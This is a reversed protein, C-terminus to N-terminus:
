IGFSHRMQAVMRGIAYTYKGQTYQQDAVYLTAVVVVAVLLGKMRLGRLPSDHELIEQAFSLRVNALVAETSNRSWGSPRPSGVSQASLASADRLAPWYTSDTCRTCSPNLAKAFGTMKACSVMSPHRKSAPSRAWGRLKDDPRRSAGSGTAGGMRAAILSHCRGIQARRAVRAHWGHTIQGDHWLAAPATRAGDPLDCRYERADRM